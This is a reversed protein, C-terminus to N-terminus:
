GGKGLCRELILKMEEHRERTGERSVSYVLGLVIVNLVIVALLAPSSKLNEILATAAGAVAGIPTPSQESM